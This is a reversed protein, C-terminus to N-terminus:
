SPLFPPSPLPLQRCVALRPPLNLGGDVGRYFSTANYLTRCIVNQSVVLHSEHTAKPSFQKTNLRNVPHIVVPATRVIILSFSL